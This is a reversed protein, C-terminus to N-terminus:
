CRRRLAVHLTDVTAHVDEDNFFRDWEDAEGGHARTFEDRTRDEWGDTLWGEDLMRALIPYLVRVACRIAQHPRLGTSAM